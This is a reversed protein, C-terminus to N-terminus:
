SREKRVNAEIQQIAKEYEAPTAEPHEHIWNKKLAEYRDWDVTTEL